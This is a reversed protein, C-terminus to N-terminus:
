KSYIIYENIVSWVVGATSSTGAVVSTTSVGVGATGATSSAGTAGSTVAYHKLSFVGM